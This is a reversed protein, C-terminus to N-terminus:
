SYSYTGYVMTKPTIFWSFAIKPAGSQIVLVWRNSHNFGWFIEVTGGTPDLRGLRGAFGLRRAAAAPPFIPPSNM